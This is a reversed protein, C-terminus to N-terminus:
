MYCELMSADFPCAWLEECCIRINDVTDRPLLDINAVVFWSTILYETL